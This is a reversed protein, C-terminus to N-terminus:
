VFSVEMNEQIQAPKGLEEIIAYDRSVFEEESFFINNILEKKQGDQLKQLSLYLSDSQIFKKEFIRPQNAIEKFYDSKTKQCKQISGVANLGYDCDAALVKANVLAYNEKVENNDITNKLTKFGINPLIDMDSEFESTLLFGVEKYDIDVLNGNYNKQINELENFDFDCEPVLKKRFTTNEIVSDYWTKSELTEFGQENLIDMDSEIENTLLFIAENYPMDVLNVNVKLNYELEQVHSSSIVVNNTAEFMLKDIKGCNSKASKISNETRLYKDVTALSQVEKEHNHSQRIHRNLSSGYKFSYSCQLCFFLDQKHNSTKNQKCVKNKEHRKQNRRDAFTDQCNICKYIM